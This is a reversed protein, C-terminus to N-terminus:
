AEHGTKFFGLFLLFGVHALLRALLGATATLMYSCKDRLAKGFAFFGGAQSYILLLAEGSTPPANNYRRARSSNKGTM